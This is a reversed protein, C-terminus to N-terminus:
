VVCGGIEGLISKSLFYNAKFVSIGYNRGFNRSIFPNCYVRSIKSLKKNSQKDPM